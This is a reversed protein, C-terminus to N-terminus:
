HTAAPGNGAEGQHKPTAPTKKPRGPRVLGWCNDPHLRYTKSSKTLDEYLKKDAADNDLPLQYNEDAIRRVRERIASVPAPGELVALYLGGSKRGASTRRRRKREPPQPLADVNLPPLVSAISDPAEFSMADVVKHFRTKTADDMDVFEALAAVVDVKVVKM